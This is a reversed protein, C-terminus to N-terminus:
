LNNSRSMVIKGRLDILDVTIVATFGFDINIEEGSIVPNPFVKVAYFEDPVEEVSVVFDLPEGWRWCWRVIILTFRRMPM